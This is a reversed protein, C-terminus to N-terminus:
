RCGAGDSVGSHGRPGRVGSGSPIHMTRCCIRQRAFRVVSRNGPLASVPPHGPGPLRPPLLGQEGWAPKDPSVFIFIPSLGGEAGIIRRPLGIEASILFLFDTVCVCEREQKGFSIPARDDWMASRRYLFACAGSLDQHKTYNKAAMKKLFPLFCVDPNKCTARDGAM